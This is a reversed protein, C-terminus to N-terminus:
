MGFISTVTGPTKTLACVNANIAGEVVSLYLIGLGQVEQWLSLVVAQAESAMRWQGSSDQHRSSYLKSYENKKLIREPQDFLTVAPSDATELGTEARPRSFHGQAM